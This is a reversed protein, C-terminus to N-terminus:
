ISYSVAGGKEIESLSKIEAHSWLLVFRSPIAHRNRSPSINIKGLLKKFLTVGM